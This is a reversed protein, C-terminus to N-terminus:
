LFIDNIKIIHFLDPVIYSKEKIKQSAIWKDFDKQLTPTESRFIAFCIIGNFQLFPLSPLHIFYSCLFTLLSVFHSFTSRPMMIKKHM